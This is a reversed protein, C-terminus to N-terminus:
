SYRLNVLKFSVKYNLSIPGVNRLTVLATCM